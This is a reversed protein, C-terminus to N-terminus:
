RTSGLPEQSTQPCFAKMSRSAIRVAQVPSYGRDQLESVITRPTIGGAIAACISHAFQTVEADTGRVSDTRLDQVLGADHAAPEADGPAAVIFIIAGLLLAPLWAHRRRIM